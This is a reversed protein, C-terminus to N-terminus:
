CEKIFKLLDRPLCFWIKKDKTVYQLYQDYVRLLEPHAGFHAEPHTTHTIIGGLKYILETKEKWNEFIEEHTKDLFMLSSDMSLTLPIELIADHYFPFLSCCGKGYETDPVSSDWDFYEKLIKFMLPTRYLSPSRFGKISYEELYKVVSDIRGRMDTEKLFPFKNDHNYGHLAIECGESLLKEIYSIKSEIHIGVLNWVSKLGYAREIERFKEINDYGCETDVDHFIIGAAKNGDFWKPDSPPQGAMVEHYVECLAEFTPEWFPRPFRQNGANHLKALYKAVVMRLPVPVKHYHFPLFNTIPKAPTTYNESLIYSITMDPDFNFYVTNENKSIAPFESKEDKFFAHVEGPLEKNSYAQLAIPLWKGEDFWLPSLKKNFKIEIINYKNELDPSISKQFPYDEIDRRINIRKV